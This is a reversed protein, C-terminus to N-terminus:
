YFLPFFTLRGRSNLEVAPAPFKLSNLTWFVSRLLKSRTKIKTLDIDPSLYFQRYREFPPILIGEKNFPPNKRAGTMGEAGYGFAINLWKPFNSEGSVFSRINCSLWITQGNYDKLLQENFSKGLLEPRYQPYRTTHFSAKLAIRQEKWKLEQGILLLSGAANAAVDGPSFGYQAQFGDLVEVAALYIFGLSGGYWAAKRQEVGSWKMLAFGARGLQYSTYAHGAKDLQFWEDNDNFFHFSTRPFNKYWLENAGYVAAGLFATEAAIVTKLRTKNLHLSTDTQALVAPVSVSLCFIFSIIKLIGPDRDAFRHNGTAAIM